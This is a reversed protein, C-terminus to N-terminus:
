ARTAGNRLRLGEAQFKECSCLRYSWDEVTANKKLRSLMKLYPMGPKWIFSYWHPSEGVWEKLGEMFASEDQETLERLILSM